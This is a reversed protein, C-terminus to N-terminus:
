PLCIARGSGCPVRHDSVSLYGPNEHFSLIGISVVVRAEGDYDEGGVRVVGNNVPAGVQEVSLRVPGNRWVTRSDHRAKSPEWEDGSELHSHVQNTASRWRFDAM